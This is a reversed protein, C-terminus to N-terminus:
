KNKKSFKKCFAEILLKETTSFINLELVVKVLIAFTGDQYSELPVKVSLQLYKAIETVVFAVILSSPDFKLRKATNSVDSVASLKNSKARLYELLLRKMLHVAKDASRVSQLFSFIVQRHQESTCFKNKKALLQLLEIMLNHEAALETRANPIKSIKSNNFYLIIPIADTNHSLITPGSMGFQLMKIFLKYRKMSLAEDAVPTLLIAKKVLKPIMQLVAVTFLCAESQQHEFFDKSISTLQVVLGTLDDLDACEMQSFTEPLNPFTENANDIIKKYDKYGTEIEILREVAESSLQDVREQADLNVFISGFNLFNSPDLSLILEDTVFVNAFDNLIVSSSEQDKLETCIFSAAKAFRPSPLLKHLNVKHLTDQIMPIFDNMFNCSIMSSLLMCAHRNYVEEDEVPDLLSIRDYLRTLFRSFVVKLVMNPESQINLFLVPLTPREPVFYEMVLEYFRSFDGAPLATYLGQFALGYRQSSEGFRYVFELLKLVHESPIQSNSIYAEQAFVVVIKTFNKFSETERVFNVSTRCYSHAKEAYERALIEILAPLIVSTNVSIEVLISDIAATFLSETFPCTEYKLVADREINKRFIALCELVIYDSYQGNELVQPKSLDVVELSMSMESSVSINSSYLVRGGEESLQSAALLKSIFIFSLLILSTM